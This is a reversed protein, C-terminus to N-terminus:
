AAGDAPTERVAVQQGGGRKAEYMAEDAAAVLEPASCPGPLRALGVSMGVPARPDRLADDDELRALLRRALRQGVAASTRPLLVAFEDGGLRAVADRQRVGQQLLAAVRVLVDDGALHGLTDNVGKFGDLDLLLLAPREEREGVERHLAEEFAARNLLGTLPDRTARTRLVAQAEEVFADLAARLVADLTEALRAQALLLLTPDDADERAREWLAPRLALVDEVLLGTSSGQQARLVGLAAALGAVDPDDPAAVRVTALLQRALRPM